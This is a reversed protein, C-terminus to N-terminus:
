FVKRVTIQYKQYSKLIKGWGERSSIQTGHCGISQGYREAQPILDGTIESLKGTAAEGHIEKYGTPYLKLSFLIASNKGAILMFRGTAVEGDLWEPTYLMLDLLAHFDSRFRQYEAWTGLM